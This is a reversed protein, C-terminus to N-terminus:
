LGALPGDGDDGFNAESMGFAQMISVFLKGVSQNNAFRLHRGPTFAGGAGGALLIPMNFHSHSNGDEIESSFFVISHDLLSEGGEDVADMKALLYALQQVEWNAITILSAIKAQDGQHHSLDHHGGSVGIFDYSRGSGANGLMFTTFRTLDCQFALVMLDSMVKVQEPYAFDSGPRDGPSCMPGQAADTMRTELERVGTMYEDLKHKDHAGLKRSLAQADAMVADIVSANQRLRRETQEATAASDFGAFMRDFVVSPDTLKPLPTSPGAWSINRAYACSYGSDCGGASSGGDIGLQLSKLSTETGFAEALHQDLSIGNKIDAGETKYPHACTLFAGTGSAHDGPGDPRAPANALGTLVSVKGQIDILPELITPLDYGAGEASPTWGVMQIGCPVYYGLFRLPPAAQARASRPLASELWPLAIVAGASGLFARRSFRRYGIM